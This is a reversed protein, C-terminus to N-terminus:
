SRVGMAKSIFRFDTETIELFGFRFPAAWRTKNGIFSLSEILPHIDAEQAKEWAVRRRWPSFGPAQNVQVPAENVVTGLATFRQCPTAEGYVEKGSYYILGDGAKLRRAPGQKGHNFQAFGGEVGFRVHERSAVGIWYRRGKDQQTM